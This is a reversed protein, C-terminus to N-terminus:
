KKQYVKLSKIKFKAVILVNLDADEFDVFFLSDVTINVRSTLLILLPKIVLVLADAQPTLLTQGIVAFPLISFSKSRFLM